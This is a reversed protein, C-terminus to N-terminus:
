QGVFQRMHDLLAISVALASHARWARECGGFFGRGPLESRAMVVFARNADDLHNRSSSDVPDKTVDRSLCDGCELRRVSQRHVAFHTRVSEILHNRIPYSSITAFM